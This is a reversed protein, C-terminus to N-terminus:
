KLIKPFKNPDFVQFYHCNCNIGWSPCLTPCPTQQEDPPSLQLSFQLNVSMKQSATPPAVKSIM